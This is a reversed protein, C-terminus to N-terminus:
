AYQLFLVNSWPVLMSTHVASDVRIGFSDIVLVWGAAVDFFSVPGGTGTPNINSRLTVRTVVTIPSSM